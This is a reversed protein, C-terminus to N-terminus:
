PCLRPEHVEHNGGVGGDSEGGAGAKTLLVLAQEINDLRQLASKRFGESLRSSLINEIEGFGEELGDVRTSLLILGSAKGDVIEEAM